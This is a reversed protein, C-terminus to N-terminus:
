RIYMASVKSFTGADTANNSHLLLPMDRGKRAAEILGNGPVTGDFGIINEGLDTGFKTTTADTLTYQPNALGTNPNIDGPAGFFWVKAGEAVGSAPLNSALTMTLTSWGSVKAFFWNGSILEVAVFDTNAPTNDSQDATAPYDGPNTALVIIPQGGAAAASTLVQTHARMVTLTHATAGALYHLSALRIFANAMPPIGLILATGATVTVGGHSWAGVINPVAM